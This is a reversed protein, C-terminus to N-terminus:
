RASEAQRANAKTVVTGALRDHIGQGTRSRATTVLIVLLWLVAASWIVVTAVASEAAVGAAISFPVGLALWRVVAASMTPTGDPGFDRVRIRVLRQGLTAGGKVWSGVFYGGSVATAILVDVLMRVTGVDTSGSLEESVPDFRVASGMIVSGLM